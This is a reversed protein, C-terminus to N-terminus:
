RIFVTKETYDVALRHSHKQKIEAAIQLARDGYRQDSVCENIAAALRGTTLRLRRIAPPGLGCRFVREGWYYQDLIHPVIIQPVGARAATATIGSGGHHVVAAVRTFVLPHPVEDVVLYNESDRIRTTDFRFGTQICDLEVDPPVAALAPDSALIVHSGLVHRLIDNVPALNLRRREQNILATFNMRDLLRAM